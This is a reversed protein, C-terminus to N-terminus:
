DEPERVRAAEARIRLGAQLVTVALAAGAGEGARLRLDLLPELGLAGLVAPHGAERSRQGAVLHAAVAPELEMAVLAAVGTAMGDLVVVGGAGAVGLVVGALVALEGGGLCALATVPDSPRYRRVAAAVARRKAEVIASDSGAGLGVLSVPDLGLLGGALAAAVTTNGVGVEGLAVMVGGEALEAGLVRGGALLRDTDAKSLADAGV